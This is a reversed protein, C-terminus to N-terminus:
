RTRRPQVRIRGRADIPGRRRVRERCRPRVPVPLPWRLQRPVAARGRRRDDGGDAQVHRGPGPGARVRFAAAPRHELDRARGPVGTRGARQRGQVGRLPLDPLARRGPRRDRRRLSGGTWVGRRQECVRAARDRAPPRARVDHGHGRRQGPRRRGPRRCLVPVPPGRPPHDDDRGPPAVGGRDRRRRRSWRRHVLDRGAARGLPAPAAARLPAAVRPRRGARRRRDPHQVVWAGICGTGGTVLFRDDAM